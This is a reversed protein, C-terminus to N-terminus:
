RESNGKMECIKRWEVLQDYDSGWDDTPDTALYDDLDDHVQTWLHHCSCVTLILWKTCLVGEIEGPPIARRYLLGRYPSLHTGHPYGVFQLM